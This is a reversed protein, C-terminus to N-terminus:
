SSQMRNGLGQQKCDVRELRLYIKIGQQDNLVVGRTSGVSQNDTELEWTLGGRSGRSKNNGEGRNGAKVRYSELATNRMKGEMRTEHAAM